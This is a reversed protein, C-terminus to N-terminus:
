AGFLWEQLADFLGPIFDPVWGLNTVMSYVGTILLIVTWYRLPIWFFSHKPKYPVVEPHAPDLAEHGGTEEKEFVREQYACIVGALLFVFGNMWSHERVYETSGTLAFSLAWIVGGSTLFSLPVVWGKGSWNLPTIM